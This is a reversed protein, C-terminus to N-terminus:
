DRVDFVSSEIVIPKPMDTRDNTKWYMVFAEAEEQTPYEERWVQLNQESYKGRMDPLQVLVKGVWV